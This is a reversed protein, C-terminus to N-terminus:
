KRNSANFKAKTDCNDKPVPRSHSAEVSEKEDGVIEPGSSEDM